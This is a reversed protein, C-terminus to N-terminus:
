SLHYLVQSKILNDPTRNGPPERLCLIGFPIRKTKRSTIRRLPSDFVSPAGLFSSFNGTALKRRPTRLRTSHRFARDGLSYYAFCVSGPPESPFSVWLPTKKTHLWVRPISRFSFNSTNIYVTKTYLLCVFGDNKTTKIYQLLSFSITINFYVLVTCMLFTNNEM